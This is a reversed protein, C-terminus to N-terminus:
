RRNLGQNHLFERMYPRSERQLLKEMDSTWNTDKKGGTRTRYYNSMQEDYQAILEVDKSTDYKDVSHTVGLPLRPKVEPDQAPWGLCMGFIPFCRKPIELMETVRTCNNRLGGIFCIGLGLSEAAVAANQAVMAVDVSARILHEVLDVVPEDGSREVIRAGRDLDACWVLFVPCAQVYPQPGAIEALEARKESDRVEIVSAVQMNTSSSAAFGAKLIQALQESSVQEDTFKRISRHSRLLSIVDNM